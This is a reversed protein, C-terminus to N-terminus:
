RHFCICVGWVKRDPGGGKYPHDEYDRNIAIAGDESSYVALAGNKAAYKLTAAVKKEINWNVQDNSFIGDEHNTLKLLHAKLAFHRGFERLPWTKVYPKLARDLRRRRIESFPEIGGISDLLSGPFSTIALHFESLLNEKMLGHAAARINANGTYHYLVVKM